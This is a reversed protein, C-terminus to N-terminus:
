LVTTSYGPLSCPYKAELIGANVTTGGGYVNNGSFTSPTTTSNSWGSSPM